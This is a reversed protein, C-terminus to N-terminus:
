TFPGLGLHSYKTHNTKCCEAFPLVISILTLDTSAPGWPRLTRSPASSISELHAYPFTKPHHSHEVDQNHHPYMHTYTQWFAYLQVSLCPTKKNYMFKVEPFLLLAFSASLSSSRKHNKEKTRQNECERVELKNLWPVKNGYNSSQGLLRGKLFNSNDESNM